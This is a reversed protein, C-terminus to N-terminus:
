LVKVSSSVWDGTTQLCKIVVRDGTKINAPSYGPYSHPNSFDAVFNGNPDDTYGWLVGRTNGGTRYVQAIYNGTGTGADYCRGTVVDTAKNPSIDINPVIFDADSALSPAVFRQGPMVKVGHSGSNRFKGAFDGWAPGSTTDATALLANTSGSRLTLSEDSFPSITGTFNASGLKLTVSAAQTNYELVDNNPSKWAATAALGGWIDDIDRPRYSWNGDAAVRVGHIESYDALNGAPYYIKITRSAPGTGYFRDTVRDAVISLSPVVYNRVYTGVKAKVTDGAVLFDSGCVTWGGGVSTAITDQGKLAGGSSLWTVKVTSSPAVRGSICNDGYYIYFIVQAQAAQTVAPVLAVLMLGIGLAIGLGRRTPIRSM